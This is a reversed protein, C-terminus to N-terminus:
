IKCIEGLFSWEDEDFDTDEQDDQKYKNILKDGFYNFMATTMYRDKTASRDETVKVTNAKIEANLGVAENITYRTELFPLLEEAKKNKYCTLYIYIL